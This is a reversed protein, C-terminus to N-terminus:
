KASAKRPKPKDEPKVEDEKPQEDEPAEAQEPEDVRQIYTPVLSDLLTIETEDTTEYVGFYDFTVNVEDPMTVAYFPMAKYTAM